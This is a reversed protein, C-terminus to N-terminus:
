RLSLCLPHPASFMCVSRFFRVLKCKIVNTIKQAVWQVFDDLQAFVVAVAKNDFQLFFFFFDRPGNFYFFDREIVLGSSKNVM